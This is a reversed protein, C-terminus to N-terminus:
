NSRRSYNNKTKKELGSMNILVSESLFNVGTIKIDELTYEKPQAYDIVESIKITDQSIAYFSTLATFCFLSITKLITKNM